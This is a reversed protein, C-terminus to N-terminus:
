RCNGIGKTKGGACKRLGGTDIVVAVDDAVIIGEGVGIRRLEGLGEPAVGGGGAPM